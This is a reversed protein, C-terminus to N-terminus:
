RHRGPKRDLYQLGCLCESSRWCTSGKVSFGPFDAKQSSSARSCRHLRRCFRAATVLYPTVPNFRDVRYVGRHGDNLRRSVGATLSFVGPFEGTIVVGGVGSRLRHQTLETTRRQEWGGMLKMAARTNLQRNM